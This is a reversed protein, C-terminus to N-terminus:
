LCPEIQLRVESFVPLFNLLRLHQKRLRQIIHINVMRVTQASRATDKSVANVQGIAFQVLQRSGSGHNRETRGAIQKEPAAQEIDASQSLM